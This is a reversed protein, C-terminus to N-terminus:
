VAHPYWPVSDPPPMLAASETMYMAFLPRAFSVYKAAMGEALELLKSLTLLQPAHTSIVCPPVVIM